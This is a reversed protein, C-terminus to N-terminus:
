IGDLTVEGKIWGRVSLFNPRAQSQLILFFSSDSQVILGSAPTQNSLSSLASKQNSLSSLVPIQYPM